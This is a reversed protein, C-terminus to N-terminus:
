LKKSAEKIKEKGEQEMRQDQAFKLRRSLLSDISDTGPIFYRLIETVRKDSSESFTREEQIFELNVMKTQWIAIRYRMEDSLHVTPQPRKNTYQSHALDLISVKPKVDKVLRLAPSFLIGGEKGFTAEEFNIKNPEGFREILLPLIIPTPSIIKSFVRGVMKVEIITLTHSIFTLEICNVKNNNGIQEHYVTDIASIISDGLDRDFDKKAKVTWDDGFNFSELTSGLSINKFGAQLELRQIKPLTDNTLHDEIQFTLNKSTKKENCGMLLLLGLLYYKSMIKLNFNFHTGKM